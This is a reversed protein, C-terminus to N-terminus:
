AARLYDDIVHPRPSFRLVGDTQRDLEQTLGYTATEKAAYLIPNGGTLRRLLSPSMEARGMRGRALRREATSMSDYLRGPTAYLTPATDREYRAADSLLTTHQKATEYPTSCPLM